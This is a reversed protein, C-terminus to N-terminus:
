ATRVQEFRRLLSEFAAVAGECAQRIQAATRIQDDLLQLFTSWRKAPVSGDGQLFRFDLDPFDDAAFRERFARYLLAGGLRSGEQVYAWGWLRDPAALAGDADTDVGAVAAAGDREGITAGASAPLAHGLHRALQAIDHDIWAVRPLEPVIEDLLAPRAAPVDERLWQRFALVHLAYDELRPEDLAIPSAAEVREHLSATAQRLADLPSAPLSAAQTGEPFNSM